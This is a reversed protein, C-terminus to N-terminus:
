VMRRRRLYAGVSGLGLFVGLMTLPEPVLEDRGANENLAGVYVHDLTPYAGYYNVDHPNGPISISLSTIAVSSVFGRFDTVSTNNYSYQEVTGDDLAIDITAPVLNGDWDSGFFRGGIATVQQNGTPTITILADPYETSICGSFTGLGWLRGWSASVDYKWGNVPGLHIPSAIPQWSSYANFEELYVGPVPLLYALFDNQDAFVVTTANATGSFVVALAALAALSVIFKRM